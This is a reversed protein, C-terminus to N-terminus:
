RKAAGRGVTCYRQKPLSLMVPTPPQRQSRQRQKRAAERGLRRRGLPVPCLVDPLAMGPRALVADRLREAFWPALPLRAGFKLQLVLQDLPAAYDVAAVTADFAPPDALCGGCIPATPWSRAMEDEQVGPM